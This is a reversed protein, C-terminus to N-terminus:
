APAETLIELAKQYRKGMSEVEEPPLQENRRPSMNHKLDAIKVTRAITNYKVRGIYDFYSEDPQQTIAHLAEAQVKTLGGEEDFEELPLHHETDEWVDHLYAVVIVDEGEDAVLRAVALPHLIYPNGSKDTQGHHARVAHELADLAKM